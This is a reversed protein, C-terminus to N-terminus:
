SGTPALQVAAPKKTPNKKESKLKIAQDQHISLKKTTKNCSFKLLIFNIAVLLSVVITITYIM